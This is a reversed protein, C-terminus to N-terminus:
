SIYEWIERRKVLNEFTRRIPINKESELAPDENLIAFAYNRALKLIETDKVIDAIRLNLVGSQQTGM